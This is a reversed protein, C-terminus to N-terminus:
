AVQDFGIVDRAQHTSVFPMPWNAGATSFAQRFCRFSCHPTTASGDMIFLFLRMRSAKSGIM